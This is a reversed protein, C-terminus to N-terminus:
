WKRVIGFRYLIELVYCTIVCTASFLLLLSTIKTKRDLKGDLKGDLKYEKVVEKFYMYIISIYFIVTITEIIFM